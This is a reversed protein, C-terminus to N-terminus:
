NKQIIAGYHRQRTVIGNSGCPYMCTTPLRQWTELALCLTYSLSFSALSSHETKKNPYVHFPELFSLMSLLLCKNARLFRRTLRCKEDSSRTRTLWSLKTRTERWRVLHHGLSSSLSLKLYATQFSCSYHEDEPQGHATVQDHVPVVSMIKCMAPGTHDSFRQKSPTM